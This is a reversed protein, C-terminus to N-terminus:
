KWMYDTKIRLWRIHGIAFEQIATLWMLKGREEAGAEAEPVVFRQAHQFL